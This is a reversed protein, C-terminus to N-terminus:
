AVLVQITAPLYTYNKWLAGAKVLAAQDVFAYRQSKVFGFTV